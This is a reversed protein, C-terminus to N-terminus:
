SWGHEEKMDLVFNHLDPYITSRRLGLDALESKANKPKMKASFAIKCLIEGHAAPDQQIIWQNLSTRNGGHVTFTVQQAIMRPNNKRPYLALPRASDYIWKGDKSPVKQMGNQIATPMWANLEPNREPSILGTWGISLRNLHGPRIMWVCPRTTGDWGDVAFFLATIFNETWDLLRTPIGHHQALYYTRWDDLEGVDAFARGEQSFQILPEFESYGTRWYAGPLLELDANKVGRFWSGDDSKYSGIWGQATQIADVVSNVKFEVVKPTRKVTLNECACLAGM